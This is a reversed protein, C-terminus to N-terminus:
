QFVMNGLSSEKEHIQNLVKLLDATGNEQYGIFSPGLKLGARVLAQGPKSLVLILKKNEFFFALDALDDLLKQSAGYILVVAIRNFPRGLEGELEDMTTSRRIRIQPMQEQIQRVLTGAGQTGAETHLIIKM